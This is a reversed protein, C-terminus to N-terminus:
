VLEALALGLELRFFLLHFALRDDGHVVALELADVRLEDALALQDFLLLALGLYDDRFVVRVLLAPALQDGRFRRFVCPGAGRGVGCWRRWSLLLLRRMTQSPPPSAAKAKARRDAAPGGAGNVLSGAVFRLTARGAIIAIENWNRVDM